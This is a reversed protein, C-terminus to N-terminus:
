RQVRTEFVIHMGRFGAVGEFIEKREKTRISNTWRRRKQSLTYEDGFIKGVLTLYSTEREVRTWVEM